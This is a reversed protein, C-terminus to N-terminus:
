NYSVILHKGPFKVSETPWGAFVYLVVAKSTLLVISTFPALPPEGRAGVLVSEFNLQFDKLNDIM